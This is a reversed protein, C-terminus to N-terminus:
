SQIVAHQLEEKLSNQKIPPRIMIGRLECCYSGKENEFWTSDRNPLLESFTVNQEPVLHKLLLDVLYYNKFHIYFPKLESELRVFVEDPLQYKEKLLWAEIFRKNEDATLISHWEETSMTWTERQLVIDRFLIRPTHGPLKFKPVVVNPESFVLSVLDDPEGMHPIIREHHIGRILLEGNEEVVYLQSFSLVDDKNKASYGMLTISRNFIELFFNKGARQKLVVNVIHKGNPLSEIAQKVEKIWPDRNPHYYLLNSMGQTGWHVEGIIWQFNGKNIEDISKAQIMVDPSTVCLYQEAEPLDIVNEVWEEKLEVVRSHQLEEEDVWKKLLESPSAGEVELQFRQQQLALLFVLFPVQQSGSDNSLQKFLQRAQSQALKKKQNALTWGWDLLPSIRQELDEKIKESLIFQTVDGACEECYLSRDAYNKGSSQYPEMGTLNKFLEGAQQIIKVKSEANGNSYEWQWKKFQSLHLLWSEKRSSEPLKEVFEILDELLHHTSPTLRFGRIVIGKKILLEMQKLVAASHNGLLDNASKLGDCQQLIKIIETRTGIKKGSQAHVIGTEDLYFSDHLSLPFFRSWTEERNIQHALSEVAWYALFTRRQSPIHGTRTLGINQNQEKFSGYNLPGFFSTTDNKFLFRQLYSIYTREEYRRRSPKMSSTEKQLYSNLSNWVEPNSHAIAEQIDPLNLLFRLQITKRNKEEHLVHLTKEEEKVLTARQKEYERLWAEGPPLNHPWDYTLLPAYKTIRKKVNYLTKFVPDGQPYIHQAAIVWKDFTTLFWEREKELKERLQTTHQIQNITESFLLTDMLHQPFGTSRVIYDSLFSWM